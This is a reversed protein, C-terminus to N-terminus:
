SAKPYFEGLAEVLGLCKDSIMLEMGTLGREKLIGCSSDGARPMKRRGKPWVWGPPLRRVGIAVLVAVNKVEGDWSRKLWIVDLDAM